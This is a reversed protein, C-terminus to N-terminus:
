DIAWMYALLQESVNQHKFGLPSPFTQIKRELLVVYTFNIFVKTSPPTSLVLVTGVIVRNVNVFM